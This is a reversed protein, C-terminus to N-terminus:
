LPEKNWNTPYKDKENYGLEKFYQGFWDSPIVVKADDGALYASWWSFTSPPIIHNKCCAKIFLTTVPDPETIYEPKEFKDKFAKKCWDIEDSAIVVGLGEFYKRYMTVYWDVSPIIFLNSLIVYDGRRVSIIVKDEFKRTYKKKIDEPIPFLEEADQRTFYKDSQFYGKLIFDGKESVMSKLDMLPQTPPEIITTANTPLYTKRGNMILPYFEYDSNGYPLVSLEQGTEKALHYATALQSMQNGLRSQLTITIM